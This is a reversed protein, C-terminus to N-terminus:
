RVVNKKSISILYIGILLMPLCLIQGMTFFEMIYGIQIDPERFFEVFSRFLAYGCLFIGSLIGARTQAKTRYAAYALIFFLAAGELASEYLQSPHRPYTEGPFIVAWPLDESAFRGWLEANIFNALRGFFLGIPAACAVLDTVRLFNLKHKKCMLYLSTIAGIIGGHFSMGGHWIKVIDIPNTLYYSFNYFLVYGIRGGLLVGLVAWVIFDDYAKQNFAKPELRDLKAIYLWGLLIGAVYSLAYWRIALPGIEFIIPDIDPFAIAM